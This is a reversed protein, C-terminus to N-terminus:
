DYRWQITKKKKKKKKCKKKKITIALGISTYFKLKSHVNEFHM